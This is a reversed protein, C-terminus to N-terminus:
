KRLFDVSVRLAAAIRALKLPDANEGAEIEDIEAATLGCTEALDDVSYNVALRTRKVAEAVSVVTM